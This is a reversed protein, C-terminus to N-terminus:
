GPPAETLERPSLLPRLVPPIGPLPTSGATCLRARWDRDTRGVPWCLLVAAALLGAAALAYSLTPLPDPWTSHLAGLLLAAAFVQVVGALQVLPRRRGRAREQASRVSDVADPGHSQIRAAESLRWWQSRVSWFWVVWGLLAVTVGLAERADALWALFASLVGLTVLAMGAKRARILEPTIVGGPASRVDDMTVRPRQERIERLVVAATVMTGTGPLRDQDVGGTPTPRLPGPQPRVGVFVMALLLTVALVALPVSILLGALAWPHGDDRVVRVTGYWTHQAAVPVNAGVDAPTLQSHPIRVTTFSVGDWTLSATCTWSGGVGDLGIAAEPTCSMATASGQDVIKSGLAAADMRHYATLALLGTLVSVGLLFTVGDLGIGAAIPSAGGARRRLWAIAFLVLAFGLPLGLVLGWPRGHASELAAGLGGVALMLYGFVMVTRDTHGYGRRAGTMTRATM